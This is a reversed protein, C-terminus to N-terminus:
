PALTLVTRGTLGLDVEAWTQGAAQRVAIRAPVANTGMRATAHCGAARPLPVLLRVPLPEPAAAARAPAASAPAAPGSLLRVAALTTAGAARLTLGSAEQTDQPLVTRLDFRAIGTKQDTFVPVSRGDAKVTMSWTKACAPVDVEVMPQQALNLVRPLEYGAYAKGADPTLTVRGDAEKAARGYFVNAKVSVLLNEVAPKPQAAAAEPPDFRAIESPNLVVSVSGDPHLSAAEYVGELAGGDSATLVVNWRRGHDLSLYDAFVAYAPRPRGNADILGFAHEDGGANFISVKALDTAMLRALAKNLLIMQLHPTYVPPATFWESNQFVFGQENCYIEKEVGAAYMGGQGVGYAIDWGVSKGAYVHNPVLDIDKMLDNQILVDFFDDSWGATGTSIIRAHPAFRRVIPIAMKCFDAYEQYTGRWFQQGNAENWLEVMELRDGYRRTLHEVIEAYKAPDPPVCHPRRAQVGEAYRAPSVADWPATGEWILELHPNVDLAADILKECRDWRGTADPPGVWQTRSSLRLGTWTHTLDRPVRDRGLGEALYGANLAIHMERPAGPTEIQVADVYFAAGGDNALTITGAPAPPLYVIRVFEAAAGKLDPAQTNGAGSADPCTLRERWLVTDGQAVRLVVGGNTCAGRIRLFRPASAAAAAPFALHVAAGAELARPMQASPAGAALDATRGSALPPGLEVCSGDFQGWRALVNAGEPDVGHGRVLRGTLPPPPPLKEDLAIAMEPTLTLTGDHLDKALHALAVVTARGLAWLNTEADGTYRASASVIATRRGDRMVWMQPTTDLGDYRRSRLLPYFVGGAATVIFNSRLKVGRLDPAEPLYRKLLPTAAHLIGQDHQSPSYLYRGGLAGLIEETQWAFKPEQPSMTWSGDAGPAIAVLFPIRADLAMLVGGQESFALLNPIAARPVADGASACADFRGAQLVAPDALQAATLRTVECGGTRLWAAGQDLFARDIKFRTEHTGGQPDWVAIRPAAARSCSLAMCAALGAALHLTMRNTM